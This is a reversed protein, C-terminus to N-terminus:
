IDATSSFDFLKCARKHDVHWAKGYHGTSFSKGLFSTVMREPLRNISRKLHGLAGTSIPKEPGIIAGARPHQM